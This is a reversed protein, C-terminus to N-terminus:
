GLPLDLLNEDVRRVGRDERRDVGGVHVVEEAQRACAAADLKAVRPQDLRVVFPEDDVLAPNVIERSQEHLDADQARLWCFRSTDSCLAFPTLALAFPVFA